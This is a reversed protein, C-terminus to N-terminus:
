RRLNNAMGMMEDASALARASLQYARQSLILQNMERIMDVNSMELAGQLLTATAPEVLEAAPYAALLEPSIRYRSGGLSELVEPVLIRILNVTGVPEAAGDPYQALLQGEATLVPDAGAPLVLPQGDMGLVFEGRDTVIHMAGEGDPVPSLHFHGNRTYVQEGDMTQVVFFGEGQIMWDLPEDTRQPTGQIWHIPTNALWNGNGMRLGEPGTQPGHRYLDRPQDLYTWLLDQFAAERGKFGPTQINALNDAVLDMALQQSRMSQYAILASLNM